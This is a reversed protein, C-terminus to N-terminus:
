RRRGASMLRGLFWIPLVIVAGTLVYAFASRLVEFGNDFISNIFGEIARFIGEPSIGFISMLFGVLLSMLILRVVVRGPSGGLFSEAWGPRQNTERKDMTEPSM